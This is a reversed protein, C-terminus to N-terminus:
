PPIIKVSTCLESKLRAEEDKDGCFCTLYEKLKAENAEVAQQQLRDMKIM